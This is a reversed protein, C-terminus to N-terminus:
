WTRRRRQSGLCGGYARILKRSKSTDEARVESVGATGIADTIDKIAERRRELRTLSSRKMTPEIGCVQTHRLGVSREIGRDRVLYLGSVFKREDNGSQNESRREKKERHLIDSDFRHGGAQM